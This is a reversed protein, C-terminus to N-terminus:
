KVTAVEATKAAAEVAKTTAAKFQEYLENLKEIDKTHNEFSVYYGEKCAMAGSVVYYIVFFIFYIIPFLFANLSCLIKILIPFNSKENCKWSMGAAIISIFFYLIFYYYDYTNYYEYEYEHDHKNKNSTSTSGNDFHEKILSHAYIEIM